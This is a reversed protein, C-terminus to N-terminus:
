INRTVRRSIAECACLYLTNPLLQYENTAGVVPSRALESIALHAWQYDGVAYALTAFAAVIYTLLTHTGCSSMVSARTWSAMFPMLATM